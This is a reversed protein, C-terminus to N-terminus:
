LTVQQKQYEYRNLYKNSAPYKKASVYNEPVIYFNNANQLLDRHKALFRYLKNFERASSGPLTSISKITYFFKLLM